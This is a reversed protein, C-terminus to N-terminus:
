WRFYPMMYTPAVVVDTNKDPGGKAYTGDLENFETVIRNATTQIAEVTTCNEFDEQYVGDQLVWITPIGFKSGGVVDTELADGVMCVRTFDISNNINSGDDISTTSSVNQLAVTYIDDFPKGVHKVYSEPDMEGDDRLAQIYSVGLSKIILKSNANNYSALHISSVFFSLFFGTHTFFFPINPHQM